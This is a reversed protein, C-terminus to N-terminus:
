SSGQPGDGFVKAYQRAAADYQHQTASRMVGVASSLPPGVTMTDATVTGTFLQPYIPAGTEVPTLHYSLTRGDVSGTLRYVYDHYLHDASAAPSLIEEFIGTSQKGFNLQTWYLATDTRMLYSRQSPERQAVPGPADGCASCVPVMTGLLFPLVLSTKRLSHGGSRARVV